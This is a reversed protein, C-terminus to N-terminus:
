KAFGATARVDKPAGILCIAVAGRSPAGPDSFSGAGIILGGASEYVMVRSDSYYLSRVLYRKSPPACNLSLSKGSTSPDLLARAEALKTVADQDNGLDLYSAAPLIKWHDNRDLMSAGQLWAEESCVPLSIGFILYATIALLASKM